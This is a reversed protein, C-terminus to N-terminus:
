DTFYQKRNSNTEGYRKDKILISERHTSDDRRLSTASAITKELSETATFTIPIGKNAATFTKRDVENDSSRCLDQNIVLDTTKFSYTHLQAPTTTNAIITTHKAQLDQTTPKVLDATFSECVDDAAKANLMQVGGHRPIYMTRDLDFKDNPKNFIPYINEINEASEEVRMTASESNAAVMMKGITYTIDDRKWDRDLTVTESTAAKTTIQQPQAVEALITQKECHAVAERIKEIERTASIEHVESADASLQFRGGFWAIAHTKEVAEKMAEQEYQQYLTHKEERSERMTVKIDSGRHVDKHVLLHQVSEDAKNYSTAYSITLSTPELTNLSAPEIKNSDKVLTSAVAFQPEQGLAPNSEIHVDDAAECTLKAGEITLPVKQILDVVGPSGPLGFDYYINAFEEQSEMFRGVYPEAINPCPKTTAANEKRMPSEYNLHVTTNETTAATVRLNIKQALMITAMRDESTPTRAYLYYDGGYRKDTWKNLTHELVDPTDYALGLVVTEDGSELCKLSINDGKTGINVLKDFKEEQNRIGLEVPIEEAEEKSELTRLSLIEVRPIARTLETDGYDIQKSNIQGYLVTHEDGFEETEMVISEAKNPLPWEIASMEVGGKTGLLEVALRIKEDGCEMTKMRMAPMTNAADVKKGVTFQDPTKLLHPTVWVVDTEVADAKLYLPAASICIKEPLCVERKQTPKQIEFKHLNIVANFKVDGSERLRWMEKRLVKDALTIENVLIDTPKTELSSDMVLEEIAFNRAIAEIPIITRVLVTQLAEEPMIMAKTLTEVQESTQFTALSSTVALKKPLLLEAELDREVGEWKSLIEVEGEEVEKITETSKERIFHKRKATTEYARENCRNYNLTTSATEESVHKTSLSVSEKLPIKPVVETGLSSSPLTLEVVADRRDDEAAHTVFTQQLSASVSVTHSCSEKTRALTRRILAIGSDSEEHGYERFSKVVGRERNIEDVLQEIEAFDEDYRDIHLTKEEHDIGFTKTEKSLSATSISRGIGYSTEQRSIQEEKLIATSASAKTFLTFSEQLAEAQTIEAELDNLITQWESSTSQLNWEQEQLKKEAREKSRARLKISTTERHGSKSYASTFTAAESTSAKMQSIAQSDNVARIIKTLEELSSVKELYPTVVINEDGAAETAFKEQWRRAVPLSDEVEDAEFKKQVIKGFLTCIQMNEDGYEHYHGTALEKVSMTNISESVEEDDVRELHKESKTMQILFKREQTESSKLPIDRQAIQIEEGKGINASSETRSEEIGRLNVESYDHNSIAITKSESLEDVYTDYRSVAVEEKSESMRGTDKVVIKDENLKEVTAIEDKRQFLMTSNLSSEKTAALREHHELQNATTVLKASAEEEFQRALLNEVSTEIEQSAATSHMEVLKRTDAVSKTVDEQLVRKSRLKGFETTTTAEEKSFEHFEGHNETKAKVPATHQAVSTSTSRQLSLSTEREDISLQREVSDQSGLPLELEDHRTPRRITLDLTTGIDEDTVAKTLLQSTQQNMDKWCILAAQDTEIIDWQTTLGQVESIFERYSQSSLFEDRSTQFRRETYLEHQSQSLHKEIEMAKETAAHLCGVSKARQLDAMEKYTHAHAFEASLDTSIEAVDKTTAQVQKELALTRSIKQTIEEHERQRRPAEIRSMSLAQIQEERGYERQVSSQSEQHFYTQARLESAQERDDVIQTADATAAMSLECMAEAVVESSAVVEKMTREIEMARSRLTTEADVSTDM